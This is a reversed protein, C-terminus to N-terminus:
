RAELWTPRSTGGHIGCNWDQECECGYEADQLDQTWSELGQITIQSLASLAEAFTNFKLTEGEAIVTTGTLVPRSM